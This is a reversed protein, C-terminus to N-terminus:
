EKKDEKTPAVPGTIKMKELSMNADHEACSIVRVCVASVALAIIFTIWVEKAHNGMQEGKPSLPSSCKLGGGVEECEPKSRRM